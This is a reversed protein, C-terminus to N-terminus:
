EKNEGKNTKTLKYSPSVMVYQEYLGDAKLADESVKATYGRSLTWVSNGGEVSVKTDGERFQGMAYEKIVDKLTALRKKLPKISEENKAIESEILEAQLIVDKIDTDPTLNNTRLVKLIEADAKEDYDPSVGGEVADRWWNMAPIIYDAEFTPYRESLRFPRVATNSANCIFDEPHDYDRDTLFSVVMYVQDLGLLYAYLAAQLAYYEPIDNEWDESRKTTKMELVAIPANYDSLELYDWMGGLAKFESFFDGRTTKFYDKGYKDEPKLINMGWFIKMYDAQKPEIIKGAKTYKTEEFPKEYTKTIECWTAFATNWSNLGFISAFRTGTLKKPHKPPEVEIHKDIWKM